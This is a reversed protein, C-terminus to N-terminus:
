QRDFVLVTRKDQGPRQLILTLTKLDPSLEVDRTQKVQGKFKRTIELTHDNVRRGSFVSDPSADPGTEPYDKGDLKVNLTSGEASIIFTLGDDEYPKIELEYPSNMKESVSDWTAAFGSGPTTRKYVYDMSLMSGDPQSQRYFDSLTTGNDSLKWTATLLTHGDKKRVVKWTDPAEVTVALTTSRIGPQDTGDAVITEPTGAGFDFAYKNAGVATVKMEDPFRSKSPNLKWKGLFPDNAARLAPTLLCAALLLRFVRKSMIDEKSTRPQRINSLLERAGPSSSSPIFGMERNRVNSSNSNGLNVTLLQAAYFATWEEHCLSLTTSGVEFTTRQPLRAERQEMFVSKVEM